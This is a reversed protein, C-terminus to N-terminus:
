GSTYRKGILRRLPDIWESASPQRALHKDPLSKWITDQKLRFRRRKQNERNKEKKQCAQGRASVKMTRQLESHVM